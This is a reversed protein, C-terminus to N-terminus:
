SIRRKNERSLYDYNYNFIDTRVPGKFIMHLECLIYKIGTKVWGDKEFRRLSIFIKNSRLIGCKAIKGARRSLDHDEALTISEDFGNLKFFLDKKILIGTAAHPLINELFLIPGNYFVNFLVPLFKNDSNPLVCFSAIDIKREYFEELSKEFFNESIIVDADLFFLLDGRSFKAGENRGKAPLGGPVVRCNHNKAIEITRDVSNADAVIIEYNNKFQKEIIRLLRPLNKEENLTPIIISLMQYNKIKFYNKRKRGFVRTM